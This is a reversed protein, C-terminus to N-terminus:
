VRRLLSMQRTLCAMSGHLGTTDNFIFPSARFHPAAESGNNRTDITAVVYERSMSPHPKKQTRPQNFILLFM